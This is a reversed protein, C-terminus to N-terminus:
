VLECGSALGRAAGSAVNVAVVSQGDLGVIAAVGAAVEGSPLLGVIGCVGGCASRKGGRITGRAVVGNGPGSSGKIVAGRAESEDARMHRRSGSRAYRAVDFVVVSQIGGIAQGAVSRVPVFRLTEAAVDRIVHGGIERSRCRGAGTAVGDGSPGIALEIVAGSTERQGVRVLQSGCALSRAASSAMNVAVVSKRDLGIIAAVRAAVEGGPLLGVIGRVGASACGEGDRITGRAVVGNGPGGGREIVAGGTPRECANMGGRGAGVAVNVVVIVERNGVRVAVAAMLILPVARGGHAASYRVVDSRAEGGGLAGGAMGSRIPSGRPVVVGSSERELIQVLESRGPFDVGTDIAMDGVVVRELDSWRSTAGGTAVEGSPLGGRLGHVGGGAGGKSKSVARSAVGGSAPAGGVEIVAGGAPRKGSRVDGRGAGVAVDIVIVAEGGCVGIAVAAMGVLPVAGGRHAAGNGIVHRCAEGSGKARRAVVRCSPVGAFKIVAGSTPCQSASVGIGSFSRARSAVDAVIVTEGGCVGGAIAAM